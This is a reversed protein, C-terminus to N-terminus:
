VRTRLRRRLHGMALDVLDTRLDGAVRVGAERVGLAALAVFAGLRAGRLAAELVAAGARGWGAESGGAGGAGASCGLGDRAKALATARSAASSLHM